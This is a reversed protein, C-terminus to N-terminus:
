RSIPRRNLCIKFAEPTANFPLLSIRDGLMRELARSTFSTGFRDNLADLATIRDAGSSMPM